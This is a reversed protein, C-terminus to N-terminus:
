KEASHDPGAYLKMFGCRECRYAFVNYKKRGRGNFFDAVKKGFITKKIDVDGEVWESQMVGTYSQDLPFGMQMNGGCESCILNRAM